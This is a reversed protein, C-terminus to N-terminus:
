FVIAINAQIGEFFRFTREWNPALSSYNFDIPRPSSITNFFAFTDYALRFQIGEWPYWMLSPTAQVEPVITYDRRSRKNQPQMDHLGLEYKAYEKVIDGFVAAQLDLQAAWGHGLYYEQTFGAHVGYMRNSVINTYRAVWNPADNGNFDLDTTIWAFREDIWFFRPGILASCRYCETDYFPIRYTAEVQQAMQQFSITMISAGNWIGYVAGGAPDFTPSLEPVPHEPNPTAIKDFPGAFENPFNFVFATIFSNELNPGFRQFPDNAITAVARLQTHTLYMWSVTLASGDLFKWGAELTFGPQWSNPGTVQNTSLVIKRDGLFTGQPVGLDLTVDEDPDPVQPSTVMFGRVAIPQDKMPNTQHYYAFGMSLFLGGNEPHTSYLPFPLNGNAPPAYGNVGSVGNVGDGAGAGGLEAPNNQAFAVGPALVGVAVLAALVWTRGVSNTRM